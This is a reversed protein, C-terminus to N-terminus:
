LRFVQLVAPGERGRAIPPVRALSNILWPARQRHRPLRPFPPNPSWRTERSGLVLTAQALVALCTTVATAPGSQNAPSMHMESGASHANLLVFALGLILLVRQGLSIRFTFHARVRSLLPGPDSLM